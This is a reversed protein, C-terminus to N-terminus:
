WLHLKPLPFQIAHNLIYICPIRDTRSKSCYEYISRPLIFRFQLCLRGEVMSGGMLM